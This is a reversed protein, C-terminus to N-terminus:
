FEPADKIKDFQSMAQSERLEAVLDTLAGNARELDQVEDILEGLSEHYDRIRKALIGLRTDRDDLDKTLMDNEYDLRGKAHLARDLQEQQRSVTDLLSM